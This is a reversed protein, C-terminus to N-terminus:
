FPIFNFLTAFFSSEITSFLHTLREFVVMQHILKQIHPVNFNTALRIRAFILNRIPNTELLTTTIPLPPTPASPPPPAIVAM